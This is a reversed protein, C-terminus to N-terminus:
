LANGPAPTQSDSGEGLLRRSSRRVEVIELIQLLGQAVAKGCLISKSEVMTKLLLPVKDAVDRTDDDRLQSDPTSAHASM